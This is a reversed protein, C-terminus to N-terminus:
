FNKV